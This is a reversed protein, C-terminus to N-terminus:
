YEVLVHREVYMNYSSRDQAWAAGGCFRRRMAPPTGSTPQTYFKQSAIDFIRVQDMPEGTYSGNSTQRIGGFYILMGSDSIPIYFMVGEARPVNDIFSINNWRSLFRTLDRIYRSESQAPQTIYALCARWEM